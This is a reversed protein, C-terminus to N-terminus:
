PCCGPALGDVRDEEIVGYPRAQRHSYHVRALEGDVVLYVTVQALGDFVSDQVAAGVRGLAQEGQRLLVAVPFVRSRLLLVLFPSGPGDLLPELVRQDLAYGLEDLFIRLLRAELCPTREIHDFARKHSPHVDYSVQEARALHEQRLDYLAGAHHLLGDGVEIGKMSSFWSPSERLGVARDYHGGDLAVCSMPFFM